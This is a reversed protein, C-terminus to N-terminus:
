PEEAYFAVLRHTQWGSDAATSGNHLRRQTRLELVYTCEEDVEDSVDLSGNHHAGDMALLDSGTEDSRDFSLASTGSPDDITTWASADTEDADNPILRIEASGPHPHYTTYAVSVSDTTIPKCPEQELEVLDLAAFTGSNDIVTRNVTQGSAPLPVVAGSSLVVRAEFRFAFAEVDVKESAPFPEGAEVSADAPDSETTLATSDIRMLTDNDYFDYADLTVGSPASNQLASDVSLWGDEDVDAQRAVVPFFDFPDHRVAMGIKTGAFADENDLDGVADDFASAPMSPEDNKATSEAFRFRYQVDDYSPDTVSPTSGRMDLTGFLAWKKAGAYGDADFDNLGDSDPVDFAGGVSLWAMAGSEQPIDICLDVHACRDVDERGPERGDSPSEDLLTDGDATEVEFYLDPGPRLEIPSFPPPVEEFDSETYYIVYGGDPGTVASGLADHQVIDADFVRVTAEPVPDDERGACDLVRGCVMWSKLETLAGCWQKASLCHDWRAVLGDETEEWEPEHVAITLEVPSVDDRGAPDEVLAAVIFPGGEYTEDDIPITFSGDDAVEGDGIAVADDTVSSAVAFTRKPRAGTADSPLEEQPRYLVVTANQLPREFEPCPRVCLTGTFAYEM